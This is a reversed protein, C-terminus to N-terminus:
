DSDNGLSFNEVAHIESHSMMVMADIFEDESCNLSGEFYVIM